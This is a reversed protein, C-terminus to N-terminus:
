NRFKARAFIDQRSAKKEEKKVPEEITLASKKVETATIPEATLPVQKIDFPHDFDGEKM